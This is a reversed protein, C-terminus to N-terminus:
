TISPRWSDCNTSYDHGVTYAHNLEILHIGADEIELLARGFAEAGLFVGDALVEPDGGDAVVLAEVLEDFVGGCDGFFGHEGRTQAPQAVAPLCGPACGLRKKAKNSLPTGSPPAFIKGRIVGPNPM